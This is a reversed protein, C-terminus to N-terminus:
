AILVQIIKSQYSAFYEVIVWQTEVRSAIKSRTTIFNIAGLKLM